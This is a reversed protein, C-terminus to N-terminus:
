VQSESELPGSDEDSSALGAQSSLVAMFGDKFEEFNVKTLYTEVSDNSRHPISTSFGVIARSILNANLGSTPNFNGVSSPELVPTSSPTSLLSKNQQKEVELKTSIEELRENTKDLKKELSKRVKLKELYHQKYKELEAKNSDEFSKRKSLESGLDKIRLEM